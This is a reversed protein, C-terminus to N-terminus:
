KIIRSKFIMKVLKSLLPTLSVARYNGLDIRSGKLFFIYTFYKSVELERSYHNNKILSCIKALLETM